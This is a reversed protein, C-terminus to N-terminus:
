KLNDKMSPRGENYFKKLNHDKYLFIGAFHSDEAISFLELFHLCTTQASTSEALDSYHHPDFDNFLQCHRKSTSKCNFQKCLDNSNM